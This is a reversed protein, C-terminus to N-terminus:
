EVVVTEAQRSLVAQTIETEPFRKSVWKEPEPYRYMITGDASWVAFTLHRYLIASAFLEGFWQLDMGSLIAGRFNGGADLLPYALAMAARGSSLGIVPDGVVFRKTARAQKFHARGGLNLRRSPNVGDCLTSGEADTVVFNTYRQAKGLIPGFVRACEAADGRAIAPM